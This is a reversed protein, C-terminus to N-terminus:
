NTNESPELARILNKSVEIKKMKKLAFPIQDAGGTVLEVRGYGGVGLTAVWTLSDLTVTSASFEEALSESDSIFSNEQEECDLFNELQNDEESAESTSDYTESDTTDGYSDLTVQGAHGFRFTDPHFLLGM